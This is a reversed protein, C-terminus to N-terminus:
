YYYGKMTRIAYKSAIANEAAPTIKVTIKRFRNQQKNNKPAFQLVYRAQIDSRIKQYLKRIDSVNEFFFPMGGSSTAIKQLLDQYQNYDNMQKGIAYIVSNSREVIKMLTYPDIASSNDEGDSLIVIINQGIISKVLKVSYAIADYLATAGFPFAISLSNGLEDVNGTFDSDEFVEHNFFVIIAQDDKRLLQGLFMKAIEKVDAIKDRMSSSIDILLVLHFTSQGSTSFYSVEQPVDDELIIFDEKKLGPIYNGKKDTIAVPVVVQMVNVTQTDDSFYSHLTNRIKRNDLARVLVELTRNKPEPGFDYKFSYPPEKFEKVLNGDLYIDVSKLAAPDIDKIEVAIRVGGVWIRDAEPSIFKVGPTQAGLPLTIFVTMLGILLLVASFYHIPKNKNQNTM